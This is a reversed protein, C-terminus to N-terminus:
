FPRYQYITIHRKNFINICQKLLLLIFRKDIFNLSLGALLHLYITLMPVSVNYVFTLVNVVNHVYFLFSLITDPSKKEYVISRGLM